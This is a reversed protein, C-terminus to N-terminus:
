LKFSSLGSNSTDEEDHIADDAPGMDPQIEVSEVFDQWSRDPYQDLMSLLNVFARVTERPTKFYAAGINKNCHEMFATLGADEILYEAWQAM